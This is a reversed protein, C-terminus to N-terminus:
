GEGQWELLSVMEVHHSHPFLDVPVAKAFRYGNECLLKVDRAGTAPVCSVLIIKKPARRVLAQLVDKGAGARPPDLLAVDPDPLNRARVIKAMDGSRFDVHDKWSAGLSLRASEQADDVAGAHSEVGVVRGQGPELDRSLALSFLGAGCYADLVTESGTLAAMQRAVNVLVGAAPTNTQFFAGPSLAFALGSGGQDPLEEAVRPEGLVSTLAEAQALRDRKKRLGVALSTINAQSALLAKAAAQVKARDAEPAPGMLLLAQMQGGATARLQVHRWVGQGTNADYAPLGSQRAAQLVAQAAEMLGPAAIHCDPVDLITDPAAYARMGLVLQGGPQAFALTMRNRFSRTQPSAVTQDVLDEAAPGVGGLRALADTVMRRKYGLQAQYGAHLWDCGGCDPFHPCPPEVQDPSASLIEDVEAEAHRKANKTIRALVRSGPLAREVFAARGDPLRGIGRGGGAVSDINLEAKTM